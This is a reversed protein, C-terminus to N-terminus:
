RRQLRNVRRTIGKLSWTLNAAGGTAVADIRYFKRINADIPLSRQEGPALTLIPRIEADYTGSREATEITVDISNSGDNLFVFLLSAEGDLRTEALVPTTVIDISITTFAQITRITDM